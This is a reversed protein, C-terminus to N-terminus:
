TNYKPILNSLNNRDKLFDFCDNIIWEKHILLDNLKQFGKIIIRGRKFGDPIDNWNNGKLFCLEQLESSNKNQIEKHSYLSQVLMQISNRIADKQRWIFYNEVEIPDPITFVRSDFFALKQKSFLEIFNETINTNGCNFENIIYNKQIISNFIGTALSASISSIKQINGDFWSSTKINKFDTLLLSIEDSQTYAFECGQINECLFKATLNMMKILDEDFPRKMDKTFSHFAKGDLRIITYTRRPLFYRTRNEYNEKIRIGLDDKM